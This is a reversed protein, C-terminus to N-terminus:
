EKMQSCRISFRLHICYKEYRPRYSNVNSVKHIFKFIYFNKRSFKQFYIIKTVDCCLFAPGSVCIAFIRSFLQQDLMLLNQQHISFFGFTYKMLHSIIDTFRIKYKNRLISKTVVKIASPLWKHHFNCFLLHNMNLQGFSLQLIGVFTLEWWQVFDVWILTKNFHNLANSAIQSSRVVANFIADEDDVLSIM